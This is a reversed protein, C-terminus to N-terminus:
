AAQARFELLFQDFNMSKGGTLTYFTISVATLHENESVKFLIIRYNYRHCNFKKLWINAFPSAEHHSRNSASSDRTPQQLDDNPSSWTNTAM